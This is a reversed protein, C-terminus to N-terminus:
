TRKLINVPELGFELLIKDYALAAARETSHDSYKKVGKYQKCARWILYQGGRSKSASVGKYKSKPIKDEAKLKILAM